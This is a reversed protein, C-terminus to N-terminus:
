EQRLHHVPDLRAASIIKFGVTLAALSIMISVSSFITWFSVKEYYEWAANMSMDVMAYGILGGLMAATTLIIMFGFSLEKV